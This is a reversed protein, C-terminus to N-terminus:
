PSFVTEGINPVDLVKNMYQIMLKEIRTRQEQALIMHVSLIYDRKEGVFVVTECSM